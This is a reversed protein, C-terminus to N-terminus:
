RTSNRLCKHVVEKQGHHVNPQSSAPLTSSTPVSKKSHVARLKPKAVPEAKRSGGWRQQYMQWPTQNGSEAVRKINALAAPSIWEELLPNMGAHAQELARQAQQMVKKPTKKGAKGLRQGQYSSQFFLEYVQSVRSTYTQEAAAREKQALELLEHFTPAPTAPKVQEVFAEVARGLDEDSIHITKTPIM